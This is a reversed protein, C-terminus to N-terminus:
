ATVEATAPYTVTFHKHGQENHLTITGGDRKVASMVVSLGLGTGKGPAKSTFFPDFIKGAIDAPVLVGDDSVEITITGADDGMTSRVHIHGRGNGTEEIADCANTFLNVWVETISGLCAVSPLSDDLDLEIDAQQKIRNNAIALGDRITQNVDTPVREQQPASHSYFKLARVIEAIKHASTKGIYANARIQLLASFAPEAGHEDLISALRIADSIDTIHCKALLDSYSRAHPIGNEELAERIARKERRPVRDAALQHATATNLFHHFADFDEAPMSRLCDLREILADLSATTTSIMNCIAGTPTNIEHAVGAVLRGLSSMKEMQIMEQQASRLEDSTQEAAARAADLEVNRRELSSAYDRLDSTAKRFAGSLIAMERSGGVDLDVDMQGASIQEAARTLKHVPRTISRAMEANILIMGLVIVVIGVAFAVKFDNAASATSRAASDSVGTIANVMESTVGSINKNRPSAAVQLNTGPVDVVHAHETDPADQPVSQPTFRIGNNTREVQTKGPLVPLPRGDCLLAVSTMAGADPSLSAVKTLDTLEADPHSKIFEALEAAVREAQRQALRRGLGYVQDISRQCAKQVQTVTSQSARTVHSSVFWGLAVLPVTSLVLLGIMLKSRIPMPERTRPAAM